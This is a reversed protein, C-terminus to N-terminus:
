KTRKMAIFIKPQEAKGQSNKSEKGCRVLVDFCIILTDESVSIKMQSLEIEFILDKYLDKDAESVLM